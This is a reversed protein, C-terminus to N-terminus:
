KTITTCSYSSQGNRIPKVEIGLHDDSDNEWEDDSNIDTELTKGPARSLSCSSSPRQRLVM